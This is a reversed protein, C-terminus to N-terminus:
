RREGLILVYPRELVGDPFVESYARKALERTAEDQEALWLKIPAVSTEILEWVADASEEEVRWTGPEFRLDFGSLGDRAHKEDSWLLPDDGPSRPRGVKDATAAFADNTWATIAIRAGPKCVRALEAGARGHDPAFIMGFASAAADFSADPLPMEQCDCEIWEIAIGAAEADARAKGLQDAAIDQGVVEAGTGAARLAVGGTGTAVDLFREGTRPALM